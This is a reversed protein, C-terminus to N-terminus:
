ESEKSSQKLMHELGEKSLASLINRRGLAVTRSVTSKAVACSAAIDDMTMGKVYYMTMYRRQKPTVSEFLARHLARTTETDAPERAPDIHNRVYSDIDSFSLRIRNM